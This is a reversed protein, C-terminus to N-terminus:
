NNEVPTDAGANDNEDILEPMDDDSDDDSDDDPVYNIYFRFVTCMDTIVLINTQDTYFLNENDESNAIIPCISEIVDSPRTDNRPVNLNNIQSENYIREHLSNIDIESTEPYDPLFRYCTGDLSYFELRSYIGNILNKADNNLTSM